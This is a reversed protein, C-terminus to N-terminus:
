CASNRAPVCLLDLLACRVETFLEIVNEWEVQDLHEVPPHCAGEPASSERIEAPQQRAESGRIVASQTLARSLLSGSRRKKLLELRESPTLREVTSLDRLHLFDRVADDHENIIYIHEDTLTVQRNIWIMGEKSVIRKKLVGEKIVCTDAARNQCAEPAVFPVGPSRKRGEGVVVQHASKPSDPRTHRHHGKGSSVAGRATPM